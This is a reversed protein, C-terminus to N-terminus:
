AAVPLSGPRPASPAFAAIIRWPSVEPVKRNVPFFSHGFSSLSINVCVYRRRGNAAAWEELYPNWAMAWISSLIPGASLGAGCFDPCMM